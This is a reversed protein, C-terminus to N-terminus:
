SRPWSRTRSPPSAGAPSEGTVVYNCECLHWDHSFVYILRVIRGGALCRPCVLPSWKVLPMPETM